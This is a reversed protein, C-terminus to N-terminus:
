EEDQVWKIVSLIIKHIEIQILANKSEGEHEIQIKYHKMKNLVIEKMEHIEDIDFNAYINRLCEIQYHAKVLEKLGEHYAENSFLVERFAEEIEIARKAIQTKSKM